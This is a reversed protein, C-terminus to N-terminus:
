RRGRIYAHEFCTLFEPMTEYDPM